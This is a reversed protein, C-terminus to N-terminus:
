TVRQNLPLRYGALKDHDDVKGGEGRRGASMASWLRWAEDPRLKMLLIRASYIVARSLFLHALFIRFATPGCYERALLVRNRLQYCQPLISNPQRLSGGIAHEIVAERVVRSAIGRRRLWLALDADELYLFFSGNYFMGRERVIYDVTTRHFLTSSGDTQFSKELKVSRPLPVNYLVWPWCQGVFRSRGMPDLVVCGTVTNPGSAAILAPLSGSGLRADNNLFLMHSWGAQAALHEVAVNCAGAFGENSWLCILDLRISREDFSLSFTAVNASEEIMSHPQGIADLLQGKSAQDAENAVVVFWCAEPNSLATDLLCSATLEPTRWSVFM